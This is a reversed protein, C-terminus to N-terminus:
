MVSHFNAVSVSSNVRRREFAEQTVVADVKAKAEGERWDDFIFLAVHLCYADCVFSFM